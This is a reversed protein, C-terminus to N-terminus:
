RLVEDWENTGGNPRMDSKAYVIIRNDFSIEIRDVDMGAKAAGKAARIVDSQKFRVPTSM